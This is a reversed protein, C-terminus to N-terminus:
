AGEITIDYIVTGSYAAVVRNIMEFHEFHTDTNSMIEDMHADTIQPVNEHLFAWATERSMFEQRDIPQEDGTIMVRETRTITIKM